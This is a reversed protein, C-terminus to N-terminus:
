VELITGGFDEDMMHDCFRDHCIFCFLPGQEMPIRRRSIAAGMESSQRSNDFPGNLPHGWSPHLYFKEYPLFQALLYVQNSFEPNLTRLICYFCPGLGLAETVMSVRINNWFHNWGWLTVRTIGHRTWWRTQDVSSGQLPFLRRAYSELFERKVEESTQLLHPILISLIEEQPIAM